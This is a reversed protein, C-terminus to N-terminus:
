RFKFEHSKKPYHLVPFDLQIIKKKKQFITKVETPLWDFVKNREAILDMALYENKLM